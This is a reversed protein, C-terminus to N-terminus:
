TTGNPILRAVTFDGAIDTFIQSLSSTPQSASICNGSNASATYDSYFDQPASAMALMAACPTITPSTDTSCGSSAAGYAVTYVKTGAATAAQAATVGQHCQQKVSPYIGSTASYGTTGTALQTSSAEADGDSIIIMVNQSGPFAAKEAVLASQAAYIAGAYYTSEGGPAQIGTCGTKGNVAEVFNSSTSLTTSTDSARYDSSFGVIQYTPTSTTMPNGPVYSGAGPTPFTDPKITPNSSSCDFDNPITGETVNPFVFLSVNDVPNAVSSTPLNNSTTTTVAGCTAASAGCPNLDHLFVQIGSLACALRSTSCQSDGDQDNMSSTTDLIIAVNYPAAVAGRMSATATATLTISKHNLLGAFFTPVIVQQQVIIANANAPAVCAVGVNKLANLCVVKPYGSVMTVNPLFSYANTDGNLSSYSTAITAATSGPLGSAGAMAAANTSAQLDRYSAYARGIDVALASMGLLGTLMLAMTPLMQGRQDNFFRHAFSKINRNM